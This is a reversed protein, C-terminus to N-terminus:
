ALRRSPVDVYDLYPTYIRDFSNLADFIAVHMLAPGRTFFVTPQTAGPTALTTLLIRNWELITEPSQARACRRSLGAILAVTCEVCWGVSDHWSDHGIGGPYPPAAADPAAPEAADNPAESLIRFNKQLAALSM